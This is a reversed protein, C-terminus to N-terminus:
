HTKLDNFAIIDAFADIVFMCNISTWFVSSSAMIIRCSFYEDAVAAELM